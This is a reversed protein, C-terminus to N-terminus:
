ECTVYMTSAHSYTVLSSGNENVLCQVTTEHDLRSINNMVWTDSGMSYADGNVLWNYDMIATDRLDYPLSESSANCSFLVEETYQPVEVYYGEELVVM